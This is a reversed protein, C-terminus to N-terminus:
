VSCFSMYRIHYRYIDNFGINDGDDFQQLGLFEARLYASLSSLCWKVRYKFYPTLLFLVYDCRVCVKSDFRLCFCAPKREDLDQTSRILVSRIIISCDILHVRLRNISTTKLLTQYVINLGEAIQFARKLLSIGSFIM